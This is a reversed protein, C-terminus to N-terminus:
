QSQAVLNSKNRWKRLIDTNVNLVKHNIQHGVKWTAVIDSKDAAKVESAPKELNLLRLPTHILYLDVYELQLDELSKKIFFDM